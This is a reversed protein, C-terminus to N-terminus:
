TTLQLPRVCFFALVGESVLDLPNLIRPKMSSLFNKSLLTEKRFPLTREKHVYTHCIKLFLHNNLKLFILIVFIVGEKEQIKKKVHFVSLNKYGPHVNEFFM